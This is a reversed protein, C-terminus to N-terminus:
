IFEFEVQSYSHDCSPREIEKEFHFTKSVNPDLPTSDATKLRKLSPNSEDQISFADLENPRKNDVLREEADSDDNLISAMMQMKKENKWLRQCQKNLDNIQFEKLNLEDQLRNVNSQSQQTETKAQLLEEQLRLRHSKEKQLAELLHQVEGDFLQSKM